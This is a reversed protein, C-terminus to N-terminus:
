GKWQTQKNLERKSQRPAKKKLKLLAKKRGIEQDNGGFIPKSATDMSSDQQEAEVDVGAPLAIGLLDATVDMPPAMRLPQGILTVPLQQPPQVQAQAYAAYVTVPSVGPVLPLGPYPTPPVNIFQDGTVGSVDISAGNIYVRDTSTGVGGQATLTVAGGIINPNRPSSGGRIADLISGSASTLTVDGTGAAVRDVLL